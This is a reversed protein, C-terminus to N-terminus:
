LSASPEEAYKGGRRVPSARLARRAGAGAKAAAAVAEAEAVLPSPVAEIDRSLRARAAAHLSRDHADGRAVATALAPYAAELADAPEDAGLREPELWKKHTGVRAVGGGAAVGGAGLAAAGAHDAASLTAMASEADDRWGLRFRLLAAVRPDGLRETVLVLSFRM